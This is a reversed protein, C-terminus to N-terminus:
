SVPTPTVTPVPRTTPTPWERPTATPQSADPTTATEPTGTPEGGLDWAIDVITWDHPEEFGVM